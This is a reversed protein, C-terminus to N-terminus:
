SSFFRVGVSGSWLTSAPLMHFALVAIIIHSAIAPGLQRYCWFSWAWFCGAGGTLCMLEWNPFHLLGFFFGAVIVIAAPPLAMRILRTVIVPGLVLQQVPAWLPYVLLRDTIERGGYSTLVVILGLLAASGLVFWAVSRWAGGASGAGFPRWESRWALLLSLTLTTIFLLLSPNAMAAVVTGSWLLLEAPAKWVAPGAALILLLFVASIASIAFWFWPKAVGPEDEDALASFVWVAPNSVRLQEQKQMRGAAGLFGSDPPQCQVVDSHAAGSDCPWPLTTMETDPAPNDPLLRIESIRVATGPTTAPHIRLSWVTGNEGGWRSPARDVPRKNGAEFVLAEWELQGADLILTQDGEKLRLPHTAHVPSAPGPRHFLLMRSDRDSYVDIELRSFSRASAVRGRFNLSLFANVGPSTLSVQGDAVTLAEFQDLSAPILDNSRDFTWQFSSTGLQLDKLYSQAQAAHTRDIWPIALLYYVVPALLGAAAVVALVSISNRLQM